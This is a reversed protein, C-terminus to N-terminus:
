EYLSLAGLVVDQYTESVAYIRRVEALDLMADAHLSLLDTPHVLAAASRALTEAEECRGKNALGVSTFNGSFGM